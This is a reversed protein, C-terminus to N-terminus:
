LHKGVNLFSEYVFFSLPSVQYLCLGFCKQWIVNAMEHSFQGLGRTTM